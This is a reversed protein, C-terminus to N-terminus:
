NSLQSAVHMFWCYGAFLALVGLVFLYGTNLRRIARKAQQYLDLTGAEAAQRTYRSHLFEAYGTVAGMVVVTVIVGWFWTM